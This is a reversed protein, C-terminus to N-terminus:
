VTENADKDLGRKGKTAPEWLIPQITRFRNDSFLPKWTHYFDHRGFDYLWPCSCLACCFEPKLWQGVKNNQHHSTSSEVGKASLAVKELRLSRLQPCGTELHRAARPLTLVEERATKMTAAKDLSMEHPETATCALGAQSLVFDLAAMLPAVCSGRTQADPEEGGPPDKVFAQDIESSALQSRKAAAAPGKAQLTAACCSSCPRNRGPRCSAAAMVRYGVVQLNGGEARRIRGSDPAGPALPVACQKRPSPARGARRPELTSECASPLLSRRRSFRLPRRAADEIPPLPPQLPPPQSLANRVVPSAFVGVIPSM